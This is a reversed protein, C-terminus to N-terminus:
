TLRLRKFERRVNNLIISRLIRKASADLQLFKRGQDWQYQFVENNTVRRQPKDSRPNRTVYPRRITDKVYFYVTNKGTKYSTADLLQGTITLQSKAPRFAPHTANVEAIRRRGAITSDKIPKLPVRGGNVQMEFGSRTVGRILRVGENGIEDLSKSIVKKPLNSLTLRLSKPVQVQVKAL